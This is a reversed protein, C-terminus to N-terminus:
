GENEQRVGIISSDVALTVEAESEYDIPRLAPSNIVAEKLMQMAAREEDGIEFEIGKRTLQVLPRQVAAPGGPATFPM